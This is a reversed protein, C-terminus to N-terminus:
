RSNVPCDLVFFIFSIIFAIGGGGLCRQGSTLVVVFVTFFASSCVMHLCLDAGAM